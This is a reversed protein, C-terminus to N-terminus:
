PHLVRMPRVQRAAALGEAAEVSARAQQLQAQAAAFRNAEAEAAAVRLAQLLLLPCTTMAVFGKHKLSDVIMPPGVDCLLIIMAMVYSTGAVSLTGSNCGHQYM